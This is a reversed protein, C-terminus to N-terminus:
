DAALQSGPLPFHAPKGQVPKGLMPMLLEGSEADFSLPHAASTFQEPLADPITAPAALLAPQHRLWLLAALTRQIAAQDRLRDAYDNFAPAAIDGLICGIANSVCQIRLYGPYVVPAIPLDQLIAQQNAPECVGVMSKASQARTMEADLFVHTHFRSYQKATAPIQHRMVHSVFAFEGRMARCMSVDELQPLAFVQQCSAPLAADAPVEALMHAALQGYGRGLNASAVMRVVLLDTNAGLRRWDNIADCVGGLAGLKDGNAFQLAWRTAPAFAWRFPPFPMDTRHPFPSQLYDGKAAAARRDLWGSHQAVLTQYAPLDARVKALCDDDYSCFGPPQEADPQDKPWRGEASSVIGPYHGEADPKLAAFRQVDEAMVADREAATLPYDALWFDAYANRGEPQWPQEMLALARRESPSPGLLRSITWLIVPALLLLLLGYVVRKLM